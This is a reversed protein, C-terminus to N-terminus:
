PNKCTGTKTQKNYTGNIGFGWGIGSNLRHRTCILVPIGMNKFANVMNGGQDVTVALFLKEPSVNGEGLIPEFYDNTVQQYPACSLDVFM